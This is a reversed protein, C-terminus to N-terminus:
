APLGLVRERVSRGRRMGGDKGCSRRSGIPLVGDESGGGGGEDSGEEEESNWPSPFRVVVSVCVSALEEAAAVMWSEPKGGLVSLVSM